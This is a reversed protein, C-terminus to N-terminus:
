LKQVKGVLFYAIKTADGIDVRSNNNFDAKLEPQYKGIVMYAVMSADGIDIIGNGNLDGKLPPATINWIWIQRDSGNENIAVATVNHVGVASTNRTFSVDKVSSNTQEFNGNFYWSVNVTQNIAINFTRTAPATDNIPTPPSFSSITPTPPISVYFTAINDAKGRQNLRDWSIVDVYYEGYASASNWSNVYIGDGSVSDGHTGDDYLQLIAINSEDPQQIWVEVKNLDKRMKSSFRFDDGREGKTPTINLPSETWPERPNVTYSTNEDTIFLYTGFVKDYYITTNISDGYPLADDDNITYGSEVNQSNKTHNTYGIYLSSATIVKEGFSIGSIDLGWNIATTNNVEMTFTFKSSSSITTARSHSIPSDTATYVLQKEKVVKKSENNDIFNNFGMDLSLIQSRWPEDVNQDIWYGPKMFESSRVIYYQYVLDYDLLENGLWTSRNIFKYHIDWQEGYFVDGYGPGIVGATGTKSTEITDTTKFNIEVGGSTTNNLTVQESYGTGVGFLGFYTETKTSKSSRLDLESGITFQQGKEIYSYSGDGNPDHLILYTMYPITIIGEDVTEEQVNLVTFDIYSYNYYPGYTFWDFGGTEYYEITIKITRNGFPASNSVNLEFSTNASGLREIRSFNSYASSTGTKTFNTGNPNLIEVSVNITKAWDDGRVESVTLNLIVMKGPKIQSPKITKATVRLDPWGYGKPQIIETNNLSKDNQSDNVLPKASGCGIAILVMMIVALM